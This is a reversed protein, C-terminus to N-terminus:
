STYNQWFPAGFYGLKVKFIQKSKTHFIQFDAMKKRCLCYTYWIFASFMRFELKVYFFVIQKSIKQLFHIKWFKRGPKSSIKKKRFEFKEFIKTFVGWKKKMWTNVLHYVVYVDLKVSRAESCVIHCAISHTTDQNIGGGAQHPNLSLVEM